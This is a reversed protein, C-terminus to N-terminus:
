CLVCKITLHDYIEKPAVSCWFVVQFFSNYYASFNALFTALTNGLSELTSSIHLLLNVPHTCSLEKNAYVLQKIQLWDTILQM